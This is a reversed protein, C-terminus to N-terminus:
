RARDADAALVGGRQQALVLALPQRDDVVVAPQGAQDRDLVEDLGLLERVGGLVVLAPQEDAAAM